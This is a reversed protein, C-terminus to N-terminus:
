VATASLLKINTCLLLLITLKQWYYFSINLSTVFIHRNSSVKYLKYIILIIVIGGVALIIENPIIIGYFLSIISTPGCVKPSFGVIAFGLRQSQTSLENEAITFISGYCPLIIGTIILIFHLKKVNRNAKHKNYSFPFWVGWFLFISHFMWWLAGQTLFYNYVM